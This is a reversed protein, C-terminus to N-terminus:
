QTGHLGHMCLSACVNYKQWYWSVVIEEAFFQSPLVARRRARAKERDALRSLRAERQEFSERARRDRDRAFHLKEPPRIWAPRIWPAHCACIYTRANM